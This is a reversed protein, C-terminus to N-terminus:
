EHIKQPFKHVQLYDRHRGNEIDALVTDKDTTIQRTIRVKDWIDEHDSQAAKAFKILTNLLNSHV